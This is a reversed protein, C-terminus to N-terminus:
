HCGCKKVVMGEYRYKYTLINNEDLYLMSIPELKTPVCCPNEVSKPDYEHALTQIISHVTPSWHDTLPFVCQGSCKFAQYRRPAIIWEDWGIDKFTVQMPRRRCLHNLRVSDRKKRVISVSNLDSTGVVTHRKMRDSVFMDQKQQYGMEKFSNFNNSYVVLLPKLEIDRSIDVDLSSRGENKILPQLHITLRLSQSQVRPQGSINSKVNLRVLGTLDFSEWGNTQRCIVRSTLLRTNVECDRYVLIRAIGGYHINSNAVLIFIRLQAMVVTESSPITINFLLNRDGGDDHLTGQNWSTISELGSSNELDNTGQNLFGRVINAEPQVHDDRKMTFTNYINMMYPPVSHVPSPLSSNSAMEHHLFRFAKKVSDKRGALEAQDKVTADEHIRQDSSQLFDLPMLTKGFDSGGSIIQGSPRSNAVEDAHRSTAGDKTALNRYYSSKSRSKIYGQISASNSVEVAFVIVLLCLLIRFFGM